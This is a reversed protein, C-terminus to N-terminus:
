HAFKHAITCCVSHIRHTQRAKKETHLDQLSIPQRDLLLPLDAM